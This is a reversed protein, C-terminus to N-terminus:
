LAAGEVAIRRLEALIPVSRDLEDCCGLLSAQCRRAKEVHESLNGEAVQLSQRLEENEKEACLKNEIENQLDDSLQQVRRSLAANELATLSVDEASVEAPVAEFTNGVQRSLFRYTRISHDSLNKALLLSFGSEHGPCPKWGYGDRPRPSLRVESPSVAIGLREGVIHRSLAQRCIDRERRRDINSQRPSAM